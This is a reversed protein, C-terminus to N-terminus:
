IKIRKKRKLRLFVIVDNYERFVKTRKKKNAFLKPERTSRFKQNM